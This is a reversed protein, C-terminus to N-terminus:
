AAMVSTAPQASRPKYRESVSLTPRAPKEFAVPDAYQVHTVGIVYATARDPSTGLSGQGLLRQKIDEKAEVQIVGKSVVEYKPTALQGILRPDNPIGCDTQGHIIEGATWWVESRKNKFRLPDNAKAGMQVDIVKHGMEVLRDAIGAGLGDTEVAIHSAGIKRQMIACEGATHMLDKQGYIRQEIIRYNELGYIVTEDDGFRAPDCAVLRRRVPSLFVPRQLIDMIWSHQIVTDFEELDDWSGDVYARVLEPRHRFAQRLNEAYGPPLHPNDRPLSQIFASGPLPNLLFDEKLWRCPPNATLLTEYEPFTGDRFKFRLTGRGTALDDRSIEEAQDINFFAYEGSNFKKVTLEDDFGGVDIVCRGGFVHIEGRSEYYRYLAPDIQQQWTRLTTDKFHVARKRGMFGRLPFQVSCRDWYRRAFKLASQCLWVTKGGGKAGGFLKIAADTAHAIQQRLTPDYSTVTPTMNM